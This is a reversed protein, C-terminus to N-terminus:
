SPGCGSCTCRPAIKSWYYWEPLTLDFESMLAEIATNFPKPLPHTRRMTAITKVVESGRSFQEFSRESRIPHIM